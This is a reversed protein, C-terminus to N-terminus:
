HPWAHVLLGHVLVWHAPPKLPAPDFLGKRSFSPKKRVRCTIKFLNLDSKTMTLAIQLSGGGTM